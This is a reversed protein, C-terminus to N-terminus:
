VLAKRRLFASLHKANPQNKGIQSPFPNNVEVQLEISVSKQPSFDEQSSFTGQSSLGNLPSSAGQCDGSPLIKGQIYCEERGFGKGM